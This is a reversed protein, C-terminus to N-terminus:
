VKNTMFDTVYSSFASNSDISASLIAPCDYPHNQEILAICEAGQSLTTKCLLLYETTKQLEGQWEYLSTAQPLINVCAAVRAQLCLTALTEAADQSDVTTYVLHIM